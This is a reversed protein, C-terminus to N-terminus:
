LLELNKHSLAELQKAVKAPVTFLQM